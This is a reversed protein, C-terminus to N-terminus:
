KMYTKLLNTIKNNFETVNVSPMTSDKLNYKDKLKLIRYVKEDISKQSITGNTVSNKIAKLVATEKDFGHCVLIIDTGANLSKVAADGINYNNVIAGMTMDDTIVVGDFNLSKRLINTIITKSFSAPNNSDIKPLLIHAVMVMDAGNKIAGSFPILELSNLRNLDNYVVPLGIHSDVSTDGHGPFHKVASIINQAQIGKMTQIGLKSVVTSNTGFSRDGIIPNKPNSNIDLVPAFDINLGFAKLEQGLIEGIKYSFSSNNVQGIAKNTPLNTFESPMRTVRGGEEDIGLFLPITSVSSNTEKLSNILTLMQNTNKVNQGLLIFGGVHYTSILTKSHDNNTYDDVGTIVLQGVKEDLTMNSLKKQIPDVLQQPANNSPTTSSTNNRSCGFTFLLSLSLAFILVKKIKLLIV